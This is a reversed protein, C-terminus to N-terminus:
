EINKRTREFLKRNKFEPWVNKPTVELSNYTSEDFISINLNATRKRDKDRRTFTSLGLSTKSREARRIKRKNNEELIAEDHTPNLSTILVPTETESRVWDLRRDLQLRGAVSEMLSLCYSYEPKEDFRLSRAYNLLVAFEKPCGNALENVKCNNKIKFIEQWKSSSTLRKSVQWPLEGKLFYIGLYAISELDDRRSQRIGSHNNLSSFTANGTRPCSTQYSIHYSNMEFKRALGFDTIYVMRKNQGLLIQHPKLDRHLYGKLHIQEIRQLLQKMVIIVTGLSFRGSCSKMVKSLNQGLLELIMFSYTDEMGSKYLKPIGPIKQLDSLIKSELLVNGKQAIDVKLAFSKNKQIHELRFVRGFSGSGLTEKIQYRSLFVQNEIIQM